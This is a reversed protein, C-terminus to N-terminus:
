FIESSTILELLETVKPAYGLDGFLEVGLEIHVETLLNYPADEGGRLLVMVRHVFEENVPLRGRGLVVVERFEPDYIGALWANLGNFPHDCKINQQSKFDMADIADKRKGSMDKCAALISSPSAGNQPPPHKLRKSPVEEHGDGDGKRKRSM